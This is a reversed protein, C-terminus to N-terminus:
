GEVTAQEVNPREGRVKARGRAAERVLRALAEGRSGARRPTAGYARLAATLERHQEPTLHFVVARLTEFAREGMAMM